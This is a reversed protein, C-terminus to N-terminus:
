GVLEVGVEGRALEGCRVVGCEEGEGVEGRDDVFAQAEARGERPERAGHGGAAGDDVPPEDRPARGDRHGRVRLVDAGRVERRM